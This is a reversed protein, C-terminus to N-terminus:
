GYCLLLLGGASVMCRCRVEEYEHQLVSSGWKSRARLLIDNVQQAARCHAAFLLPLNALLALLFRPQYPLGGVHVRSCLVVQLKCMPLYAAHHLVPPQLAHPVSSSVASSARVDMAAALSDHNGWYTQSGLSTRTDPRLKAVECEAQVAHAQVLKLSV